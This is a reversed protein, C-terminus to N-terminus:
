RGWVVHGLSFNKRGGGWNGLWLYRDAGWGMGWVGGLAQKQQALFVTPPAPGRPVVGKDVGGGRNRLGKTNGGWKKGGGVGGLSKPVEGLLDGEGGWAKPLPTFVRTSHRFLFKTKGGQHAVVGGVGFVWGGIGQKQGPVGMGGRHTGGGGPPKNPAWGGGGGGPCGGLVGVLGGNKKQFEGRKNEKEEGCGGGGGGWVGGGGPNPPPNGGGGRVNPHPGGGM